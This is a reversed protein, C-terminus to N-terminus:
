RFDEQGVQAGLSTLAVSIRIEVVLCGRGPVEWPVPLGPEVQEQHGRM